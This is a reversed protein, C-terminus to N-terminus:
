MLILNPLHTGHLATNRKLSIKRCRGYGVHRGQWDYACVAHVDFENAPDPRLTMARGQAKALFEDLCGGVDYYPLAVIHIRCIQTM